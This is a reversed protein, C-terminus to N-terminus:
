RVVGIVELYEADVRTTGDTALNHGTWLAELDGRLAGAGADNLTAFARVTPGYWRQSEDVVREPSFPYEFTIARRTLAL